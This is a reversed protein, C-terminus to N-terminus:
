PNGTEEGEETEDPTAGSYPDRELIDGESVKIQEELMTKGEPTCLRDLFVGPEEDDVPGPYDDEYEKKQVNALVICIGTEACLNQLSEFVARDWGKMLSSASLSSSTYEQDTFLVLREM